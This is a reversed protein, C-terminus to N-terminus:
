RIRIGKLRIYKEIISRVRFAVEVGSRLTITIFHNPVSESHDMHKIEYLSRM